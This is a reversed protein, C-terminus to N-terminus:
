PSRYVKSQSRQNNRGFAIRNGQERWSDYTAVRVGVSNELQAEYVNRNGDYTAIHAWIMAYTFNTVFDNGNSFM